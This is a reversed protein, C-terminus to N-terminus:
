EGQIVRSLTIASSSQVDCNTAQINQIKKKELETKNRSFQEDTM